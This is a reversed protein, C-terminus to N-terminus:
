MFSTNANDFILPEETYDNILDFTERWSADYFGHAELGKTSDEFSNSMINPPSAEHNDIYTQDEPLQDNEAPPSSVRTSHDMMAVGFGRIEENGICSLSEWDFYQMNKIDYPSEDSTDLLASFDPTPINAETIFDDIGYETKSTDNLSDPLPTHELDLDQEYNAQKSASSFLSADEGSTSVINYSPWCTNELSQTLPNSDSEVGMLTHARSSRGNDQIGPASPGEGLCQLSTAELTNLTEPTPIAKPSADGPGSPRGGKSCGVKSVIESRFARLDPLRGPAENGWTYLVGLYALV